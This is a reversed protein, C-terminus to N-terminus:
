PSVHHVVDSLRNKFAILHFIHLATSIYSPRWSRIEIASSCLPARVVLLLDELCYYANAMNALFHLAFWRTKEDRMHSSLAQLASDCVFLVITCIGLQKGIELLSEPGVNQGLVVPYPCQVEM